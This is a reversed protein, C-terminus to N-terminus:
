NWSNILNLTSMIVKVAQKVRIEDQSIDNVGNLEQGYRTKNILSQCAMEISNIILKKNKM